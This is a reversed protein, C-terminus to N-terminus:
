PKYAEVYEGTIQYVMANIITLDFDEDWGPSGVARAVGHLISYMTADMEPTLAHVAELLADTGREIYNRIETEFFAFMMDVYVAITPSARGFSELYDLQGQRIGRGITKLAKPSYSKTINKCAGITDDFTYFDICKELKSLDGDEPYVYRIMAVLNEKGDYFCRETKMGRAFEWPKVDLGTLMLDENSMSILDLHEARSVEGYYYYEMSDPEIAVLKRTITEGGTLIHGTLPM